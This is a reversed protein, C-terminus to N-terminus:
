HSTGSWYPSHHKTSYKTCLSLAGCIASLVSKEASIVSLGSRNTSSYVAIFRAAAPRTSHQVFPRLCYPARRRSEQM